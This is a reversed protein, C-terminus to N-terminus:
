MPGQCNVMRHVNDFISSCARQIRQCYYSMTLSSEETLSWLFSVLHRALLYSVWLAVHFNLIACPRTCPPLFRELSLVLLNPLEWSVSLFILIEHPQSLFWGLGLTLLYFEWPASPLAILIEHPWPCPSSVKMLRQAILYSDWSTSPLTILIEHLQPCVSLFRVHSFALSILIEHPQTCSSLLRM